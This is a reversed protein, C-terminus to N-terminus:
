HSMQWIYYKGLKGTIRYTIYYFNYFLQFWVGEGVWSTTVISVYRGITSM